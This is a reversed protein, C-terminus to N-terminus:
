NKVCKVNLHKAQCGRPTNKQADKKALNNAESESKHIGIETVMRLYISM